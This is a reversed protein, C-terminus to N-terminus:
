IVFWFATYEYKNKTLRLNGVDKLFIIKNKIM